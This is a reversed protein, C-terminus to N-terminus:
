SNVLILYNIAYKVREENSNFQIDKKMFDSNLFQILELELSCENVEKIQALTYLAGKAFEPLSM